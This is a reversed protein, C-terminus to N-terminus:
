HRRLPNGPPHDKVVSQRPPAQYQLAHIPPVLLDKIGHKYCHDALDRINGSACVSLLM